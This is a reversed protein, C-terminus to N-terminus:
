QKEGEKSVTVFIKFGNDSTIQCIGGLASVRDRINQLGIGSDSTPKSIKGNDSFILQRFAPHERMIVSVKDADSHKIVNSVAEKVIGIFCLKLKKPADPSIDCDFSVDCKTELAKLAERASVALDISEDHLRHVSMRISDMAGSLTQGIGSLQEKVMEDKEIVKLAGVQLISRSLMHGVNDHIERAIRNREGLTALQIEYDQKDILERNRAKLQNQKETDEDRMSILKQEYEYLKVTKIGLLAAIVCLGSTVFATTLGLKTFCIAVSLAPFVANYYRKSNTCDYVVIPCLLSIPLFVVAAVSHILTLFLCYVKNESIIEYFLTFFLGSLIAAVPMAFGDLGLVGPLCCFFIIAKDCIRRM